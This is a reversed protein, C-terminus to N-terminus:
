FVSQLLTVLPQLLLASPVTNLGMCHLPMANFCLTLASNPGMELLLIAMCLISTMVSVHM